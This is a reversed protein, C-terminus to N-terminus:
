LGQKAVSEHMSRLIQTKKINLGKMDMEKVPWIESGGIV